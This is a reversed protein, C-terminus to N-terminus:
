CDKEELLDSWFYQHSM